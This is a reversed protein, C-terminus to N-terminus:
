RDSHENYEQLMEKIHKTEPDTIPLYKASIPTKLGGGRWWRRFLSAYQAQIEDNFGYAITNFLGALPSLFAHTAHLFYIPHGPDIEDQIRDAIAPIYCIAWGIIYLKFTKLITAENNTRYVLLPSTLAMTSAIKKSVLIYVAVVYFLTAVLLAYFYLWRFLGRDADSIWCWLGSNAYLGQFYSAIAICTPIGWSIVHFWKEYREVSYNSLRIVQDLAFALCVTWFISTLEFFELAGALIDCIITKTIDLHLNLLWVFAVMFDCIALIFILRLQFERIEKFVLYSIIISSTGVLSICCSTEVLSSIVVAQEGTWEHAM